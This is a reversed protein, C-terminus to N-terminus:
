IRDLSRWKGAELGCLCEKSPAGPIPKSAGAERSLIASTRDFDMGLSCFILIVDVIKIEMNIEM